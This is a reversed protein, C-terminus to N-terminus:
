EPQHAYCYASGEMPKRKCQAGSKTIGQCQEAVLVIPDPDAEEAVPEIVIELEPPALEVNIPKDIVIEIEASEPEPTEEVQIDVDEVVVEVRREIVITFDMFYLAAVSLLMFPMLPALLLVGAAGAVAPVDLIQENTRSNLVKIRHVSADNMLEKVVNVMERGAVEIEETAQHVSERMTEKASM